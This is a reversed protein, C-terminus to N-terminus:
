WDKEAKRPNAKVKRENVKDQVKKEEHNMADLLSELRQKSMGNPNPKPQGGQADKNETKDKQNGGPKNQDQKDKGQDKNPDDKKDQNGKNKDKDKGKNKDKDKDKDKGGKGKNKDDSKPPNKKLLKKALALNYRSEEDTPDNRLANKYAEVAGTYEKQNMLCNGLNHFARHKETETKAVKIAKAFQNKAETSQKQKYIANGLNITASANPKFRAQSLRYDAEAESFNNDEYAANGKSYAKDKKSQAFATGIMACFFCSILWYNKM